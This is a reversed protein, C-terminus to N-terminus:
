KEETEKLKRLCALLTPAEFEGEATDSSATWKDADYEFDWEHGDRLYIANTFGNCPDELLEAIEREAQEKGFKAGASWAGELARRINRFLVAGDPIDFNTLAVLDTIMAERETEAQEM